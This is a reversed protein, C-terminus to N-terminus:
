MQPLLPAWGMCSSLRPCSALPIAAWSPPQLFAHQSISSYSPPHYGLSLLHNRSSPFFLFFLLGLLASKKSAFSAAAQPFCLSSAEKLKTLKWRKVGAEGDLLIHMINWQKNHVDLAVPKTKTSCPQICLISHERKWKEKTGIETCAHSGDDELEEYRNGYM